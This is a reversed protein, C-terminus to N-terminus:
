MSCHKLHETLETEFYAYNKNHIKLNIKEIIKKKPGSWVIWLNKFFSSTHVVSRRFNDESILM